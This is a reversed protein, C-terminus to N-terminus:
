FSQVLASWGGAVRRPSATYRLSVSCQPEEMRGQDEGKMERPRLKGVEVTPNIVKAGALEEALGPQQLFLCALSPIAHLGHGWRALDHGQQLSGNPWQMLPPNQTANRGRSNVASGTNHCLPGDYFLDSRPAERSKPSLTGEGLDLAVWGNILLPPPMQLVSAQSGLCQAAMGQSLDRGLAEGPSGTALCAQGKQVAPRAAPRCCVRSKQKQNFLRM